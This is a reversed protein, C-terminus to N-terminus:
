DEARAVDTAKAEELERIAVPDGHAWARLFEVAYAAGYALTHNIADNLTEARREAARRREVERNNVQLLETVRADHVERDVTTPEVKEGKRRPWNAERWAMMDRACERAEGVLVVDETPRVQAVIAAHRVRAWEKVLDPAHPDRALLVFIPEDPLAKAYCDHKAPNIKNGM